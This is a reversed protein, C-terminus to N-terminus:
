KIDFSFYKERIRDYTGDAIVRHIANDFAAKLQTDEKRLAIAYTDYPYPPDRPVDAIFRCCAGERSELFKALTPKDGFVLDLRDTLVDLNAEELKAYLKINSNKYHQALYVAAESRDTVGISKGALAEPTVSKVDLPKEGIFSMPVKYYPESFALRKQRRETIEVSSMIADYDRNLLARFIGEWEHTVLTCKTEMADCLAKALDVEFGQLENNELYNFPPYAGEIAIRVPAKEQAALSATLGLWVLLSM